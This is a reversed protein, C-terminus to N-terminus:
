VFGLLSVDQDAEGEPVPPDPPIPQGECLLPDITFTVTSDCLEKLIIEATQRARCMSSSTLSTFKLGLDKLRRGTIAAQERGHNTLYNQADGKGALNYQGHRILIM